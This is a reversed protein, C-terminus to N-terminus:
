KKKSRKLWYSHTGLYDITILTDARIIYKYTSESIGNRGQQGQTITLTGNSTKWYIVPRQGKINLKSLMQEIYPSTINMTGNSYYYRKSNRMVPATPIKVLNSDKSFLYAWECILADDHQASKQAYLASTIFYILIIILTVIIRM